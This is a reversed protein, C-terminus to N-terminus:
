KIESLLEVLMDFWQFDNDDGHKYISATSVGDVGYLANPGSLLTAEFSNGGKNFTLLILNSKNSTSEVFSKLDLDINNNSIGTNLIIVASYDSANNIDKVDLVKYDYDLNVKSSQKLIYKSTERNVTSRGNYVIAIDKGDAAFAPILMTIFLSLILIKKM